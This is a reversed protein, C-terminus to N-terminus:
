ITSSGFPFLSGAISSSYPNGFFVNRSSHPKLPDLRTVPLKICVDELAGWRLAKKKTVRLLPLNSLDTGVHRHCTPRRRGRRRLRLKQRLCFHLRIERTHSLAASQRYLCNQKLRHPAKKKTVRLLPLNSFDTGVHRHCTPRRRGRRRLRLKQRLCFHM